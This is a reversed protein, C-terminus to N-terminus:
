KNNRLESYFSESRKIFSVAEEVCEEMDDDTYRYQSINGELLDKWTLVCRGSSLYPLINNRWKDQHNLAYEVFEDDFPIGIGYLLNSMDKTVERSVELLTNHKTDPLGVWAHIDFPAQTTVGEVYDVTNSQKNNIIKRIEKSTSICKGKFGERVEFHKQNNWNCKYTEGYKKLLTFLRLYGYCYVSDSLMRIPKRNLVLKNTIPSLSDIYWYPLEKLLM